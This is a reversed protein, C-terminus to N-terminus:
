IRLFCSHFFPIQEERYFPRVAYRVLSWRLQITVCACLYAWYFLCLNMENTAGFSSTRQIFYAIRCKKNNNRECKTKTQGTKGDKQREICANAWQCGRGKWRWDNERMQVRQIYKAVIEAITCVFPRNTRMWFSHSICIVVSYLFWSWIYWM